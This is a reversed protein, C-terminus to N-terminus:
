IATELWKKAIWEHAGTEPHVMDDSWKEPPTEQLDKNLMQQLPVLIADFEDALKRVVDIYPPLARFMEDNTDTCFMFPEILVLRCDLDEKARSLMKRYNTEYEEPFVAQNLTSPECSRWLDNIGILISLTDPKIDICDPQWRALLDRTTNGSIGTNIINLDLQPYRELLEAAIFSVYGNGLSSVGAERRGCDTISDGTFLITQGAQLEIKRGTM